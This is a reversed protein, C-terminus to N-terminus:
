EVSGKSGFIRFGNDNKYGVALQTATIVATAGNELEAIVNFDDDLVRGEIVSNLRASVRKIDLGSVWTAAIFAHTGIDGGCCSIGSRAPDMRWGAQPHGELEIQEALWGQNYWSEVKRIDGIDGRQVMERALMMMPHGTYTHALVFPVDNARAAADLKQAESVTITVPKECLVAIGAELFCLAPEFHANNPTVIVVYDLQLEGSKVADLLSHYDPYGRIGWEAAAELAARSDSRLAGAVLERTDDLVIARRHCSGFFSKPGGGGIMAACLKAM